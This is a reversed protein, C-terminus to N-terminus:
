EDKRIVDDDFRSDENLWRNVNLFNGVSCWLWAHSQQQESSFLQPGTIPGSYCRLPRLQQNASFWATWLPSSLAIFSKNTCWIRASDVLLVLEHPQETTTCHEDFLIFVVWGMIVALCAATWRNTSQFIVQICCLEGIWWQCAFPILENSSFRSNLEQYSVQHVIPSPVGDPYPQQPPSFTLQNTQFLSSGRGQATPFVKSPNQTGSNREDACVSPAAPSTTTCLTGLICQFLLVAPFIPPSLTSYYPASQPNNVM